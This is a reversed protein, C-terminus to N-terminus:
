KVWSANGLHHGTSNRFHEVLNFGQDHSKVYNRVSSSIKTGKKLLDDAIPASIGMGVPIIGAWVDLDYDEKDDKPPGTRIKASAHDIEIALVTTAKLEKASPPRVENWRDRILHESIVYLAHEKNEDAVPYANGFVVVSRYNMSHHFASRALVLGDVHSVALSMVVGAELNKIMRSTTAGHIYLRNEERGYLTPIIFPRGDVVFSIHCLFGADLIGYVTEKDYHGREPARKVKNLTTVEFQEM